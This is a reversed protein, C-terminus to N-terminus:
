AQKAEIFEILRSAFLDWSFRKKEKEISESWFGPSKSYIYDIARKLAMSNKHDAVAGTLATIQEHFAGSPFAVVPCNKGMAFAAIGSQTANTYPCVLIDHDDILHNLHADSIYRPIVTLRHDIFLKKKGMVHNLLENNYFEGAITLHLSQDMELLGLAYEIGKYQRVYGAMLIKKGWHTKMEQNCSDDAVPNYSDDAVPNCSNNAVPHFLTLSPFKPKGWQKAVHHSLFIIGDGQMFLQTVPYKWLKASKGHHLFNHCLFFVRIGRKKLARVIYSCCPLFWPHWWAIILTNINHQLLLQASQKWTIPNCTDLLRINQYGKQNQGSTKSGESQSESSNIIYEPMLESSGPFFLAPYQRIYNLTLVDIRKKQFAKRLCDNFLSIGGRLPPVPGMLGVSFTM